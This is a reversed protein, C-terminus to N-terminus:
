LRSSKTELYATLFAKLYAAEEPDNVHDIVRNINGDDWAFGHWLFIGVKCSLLVGDRLLRNKRIEPIADHLAEWFANRVENAAQYYHFQPATRDGSSSRDYKGSPMYGLLAELGGLTMGFPLHEAEAWDVLGNVAWTRADVLVNTPLLDGHTLAIPVVDLAGEQIKMRAVRAQRRLDESPLRQELAQLRALISSGVKGTCATEVSRGSAVAENWGAAFFRAMDTMVRRLKGVEDESLRDRRPQLSAFSVGPVLSMECAQLVRSPGPRGLQLDVHRLLDPVLDGHVARAHRAMRVDLAHERPRFQVVVQDCGHRVRSTTKDVFSPGVLLTHSCGGQTGVPRIQAHPRWTRVLELCAQYDASGLHHRQFFVPLDEDTASLTTGPPDLLGPAASSAFSSPM